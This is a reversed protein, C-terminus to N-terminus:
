TMRRAPVTGGVAQRGDDPRGDLAVLGVVQSSVSRLCSYYETNDTFLSALRLPVPDIIRAM